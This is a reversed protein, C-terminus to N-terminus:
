RIQRTATRLLVDEIVRIGIQCEAAKSGDLYCIWVRCYSVSVEVVLSPM